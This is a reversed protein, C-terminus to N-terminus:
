KKEGIFEFFQSTYPIKETLIKWKGQYHYQEYASGNFFIKNYEHLRYRLVDIDTGYTPKSFFRNMLFLYKAKTVVDSNRYTDFWEENMEGLSAFNSVLDIAGGKIKHYCDIPILTFDFRDFFNRDIVDAEYVDKFTNIKINPTTSALFYYALILQEPFEVLVPLTKPFEQKMLWLYIGYGGGIDMVATNNNRLPESLYRESLNMYRINNSWRRNFRYGDIEVVRPNGVMEIPYKKLMPLDDEAQMLKYRDRANVYGAIQDRFSTGYCPLESVFVQNRRFSEIVSYNISKDPLIFKELTKAARSSWLDSDNDTMGNQLLYSVEAEIRDCIMKDM